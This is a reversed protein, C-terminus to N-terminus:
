TWVSSPLQGRRQGPADLHIGWVLPPPGRGSPTDTDYQVPSRLQSVENDTRNSCTPRGM